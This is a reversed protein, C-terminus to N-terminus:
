SNLVKKSMVSGDLADVKILCNQTRVAYFLRKGHRILRSNEISSPCNKHAIAHAEEKNITAMKQLLRRYKVKMSSKHNYSHTSAIQSPTLEQAQVAGVLVFLGLFLHKM